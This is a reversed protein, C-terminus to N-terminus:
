RARGVRGRRSLLVMALAAASLILALGAMVTTWISEGDESAGQDGADATVTPNAAQSGEGGANQRPVDESVTTVAAPTESGAAGIWAVEDGDAYTQIAKWSVEGERGPTGALFNFRVLGDPRARGSWVIRDVLGNSRTLVRRTWGPTEEFSYPYVGPPVKLEVKTTGSETEGPVLVTFLVPDNPAVEGPLVQIHAGAPSAWLAAVGAATVLGAVTVRRM